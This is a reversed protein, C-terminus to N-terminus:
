EESCLWNMAGHRLENDTQFKQGGLHVKMPGFMHFDSPPLDPSYPPHIMIKWDVSPLMFDATHPCASDDLLSIKESLKGTKEGL